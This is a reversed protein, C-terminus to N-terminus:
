RMQTGVSSAAAVNCREMVAVAPSPKAGREDGVAVLLLKDDVAERQTAVAQRLLLGRM